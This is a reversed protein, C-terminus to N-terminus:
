QQKASEEPTRVTLVPCPALRVVKEASSGLLAHTIGTHGHTGMVIMEAAEEKACELTADHAEGNRVLLRVKVNPLSERLKESRAELSEMARTQLEEKIHGLSSAMGFSRLPYDMQPIAHMLVLEAGFSAALTGAYDVAHSSTPSFDTPCVIRTLKIM